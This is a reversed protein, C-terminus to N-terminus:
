LAKSRQILRDLSIMIECGAASTLDKRSGCERTSWGEQQRQELLISGPMGGVRAYPEVRLPSGDRSVLKEITYISNAGLEM